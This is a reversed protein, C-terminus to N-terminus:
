HKLQALTNKYNWPLWKRPMQKVTQAYKQLCTLYEFANIKQLKCTQIISMFIDGVEAGNQTKYFYANKRNLIVMKLSREVINNDLPAGEKRLFLTLKEWHKIMYRIAKGLSSNPEVKKEDFQENLWKKLKDMIPATAQQHFKLREGPTIKMEKVARENIYVEGLTEIVHKSEQPFAELTDIFNRRGHLLCYAVDTKFSTSLNRSLADCMQIPPPLWSNRQELVRSINEGAHNRGSFFLVIKHNDNHSVIGTTFIGRRKDDIDERKNKNEKLLELIKITTDDNYIVEGQAGQWLLELYVPRVDVSVPKVIEWQTSPALPIGLNEQLLSLRHFPMGYGYKLLAVMAGAAEDYKKDGAEEPLQPSFIEQCLSCRLKMMKYFRCKVPTGGSLRLIKGPKWDYLKGKQCSPCIDGSNLDGLTVEIVDAGSYSAAGNKGHGPKKTKKDKKGPQNGAGDTGDAGDAAYAVADCDVGNLIGTESVTDENENFLNNSKESKNWFLRQLRKLSIDKEALLNSLHFFTTLLGKLLEYDSDTLQKNKIREELQGAEKESLEIVEFAHAEGSKTQAQEQKRQKKKETSPKM